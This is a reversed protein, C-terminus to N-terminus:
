GTQHERVCVCAHSRVCVCAYGSFNILLSECQVIQKSIPLLPSVLNEFCVLM